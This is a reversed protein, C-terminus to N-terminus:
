LQGARVRALEDRAARIQALRGREGSRVGALSLANARSVLTEVTAELVAAMTGRGTTTKM